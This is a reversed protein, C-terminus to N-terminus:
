HKLFRKVKLKMFAEYKFMCFFCPCTLSCFLGISCGFGKMWLTQQPREASSKGEGTLWNIAQSNLMSTHCCSTLLQIQETNLTVNKCLCFGICLVIKKKKKKKLIYWICWAISQCGVETSVYSNHFCKVKDNESEKNGTM